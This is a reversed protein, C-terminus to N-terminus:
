PAAMRAGMGEGERSWGKGSVALDESAGVGVGAHGRRAGPVLTSPPELVIPAGWVWM